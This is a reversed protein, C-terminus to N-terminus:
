QCVYQHIYYFHDTFWRGLNKMETEMQKGEGRLTTLNELVTAKSLYHPDFGQLREPKQM